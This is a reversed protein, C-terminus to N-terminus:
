GILSPDLTGHFSTAVPGTMLVRGDARWDIELTGGDLVIEAKRKALGRRAAAVLAACAGSGCAITIGAGREWVRFRLREPSLVQVVGINAREPFIPDHELKPGLSALDISEADDVFFTAHPNGMSTAVPVVLPGLTLPVNLTDCDRALPIERWALRPVGMDVGVRGEGHSQAALLGAVTEVTVADKGKERMVLQAVCRTGNGCAEAESGDANLIRMFVDAGKTKTKELVLLQDFGVGKHRDAIARVAADGLALKRKRADIVVFDNGLGHMKTFPLDRM